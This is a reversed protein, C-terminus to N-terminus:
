EQCTFDDLSKVCTSILLGHKSVDYKCIVAVITYFFITRVADWERYKQYDMCLPSKSSQQGLNALLRGKDLYQFKFIEIDEEELKLPFNKKCFSPISM